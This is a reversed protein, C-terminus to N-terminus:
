NFLTILRWDRSFARIPIGAPSAAAIIVAFNIMGFIIANILGIRASNDLYNIRLASKFETIAGSYQYQSMYSQGLDYHEKFDAFAIGSLLCTIISLKALVALSKKM